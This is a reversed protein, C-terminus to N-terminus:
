FRFGPFLTTNNKEEFYIFYYFLRYNLDPGYHIEPDYNIYSDYEGHGKGTLYRYNWESVFLRNMSEYYNGSIYERRPRTVFWTEFGPDIITLEYEVSDTSAAESHSLEKGDKGQSFGQGQILGFSIFLIYFLSKVLNKVSLCCILNFFHLFHVM